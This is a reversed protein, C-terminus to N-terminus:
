TIDTLSMVTKTHDVSTDCNVVIWHLEGELHIYVETFKLDCFPFFLVIQFRNNSAYGEGRIVVM